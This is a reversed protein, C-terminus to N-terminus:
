LLCKCIGHLGLWILFGIIPEFMGKNWLSSKKFFIKYILLGLAFTTVILCLATSVYYIWIFYFSGKCNRVISIDWRCVIGDGAQKYNENISEHYFLVHTGNFKNFYNM